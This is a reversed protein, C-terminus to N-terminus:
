WLSLLPLTFIVPYKRCLNLSLSSHWWWLSWWAAVKFHDFDQVWFQRQAFRASLVSWRFTRIQEPFTKRSFTTPRFLRQASEVRSTPSWFVIGDSFYWYFLEWVFFSHTLSHSLYLSLALSLSISLSLSYSLLCNSRFVVFVPRRCCSCFQLWKKVKWSFQNKQKSM